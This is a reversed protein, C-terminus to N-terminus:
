VRDLVFLNGAVLLPVRYRRRKMCRLEGGIRQAKSTDPSCATIRCIGM